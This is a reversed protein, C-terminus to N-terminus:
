KNLWAKDEDTLKEGHRLKEEILNVHNYVEVDMNQYSLVPTEFKLPVNSIFYPGEHWEYYNGQPDMWIVGPTDHGFMGSPNMLQPTGAIFGDFSQAANYEWSYTDSTAVVREYPESSKTASITKGMVASKFLLHGDWSFCYIWQINNPDNVQNLYGMFIARENSTTVTPTGQTDLMQAREGNKVDSCGALSIITLLIAIIAILLITAVNKKKM